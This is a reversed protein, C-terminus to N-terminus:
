FFEAFHELFYYYLESEEKIFNESKTKDIGAFDVVKRIFASTAEEGIPIEPIHLFPQHYKRQLLKATKVGVWPSIVLNFQAKPIQKWEKVGGSQPGFLVNVRLGAARLIRVIELYDGRWNQNFYPIDFWLNLLGKEKEGDYDGVFQNIIAEIVIEHGTLNTGKLVVQKQMFLQFGQEQYKKVVSEVNDGILEGSCGTLVM